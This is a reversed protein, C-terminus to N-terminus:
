DYTLTYDKTARICSSSIFKAHHKLSSQTISKLLQVLVYLFTKAPIHGLSAGTRYSCRQLGCLSFHYTLIERRRHTKMCSLLLLLNFLCKQNKWITQLGQQGDPNSLLHILHHGSLAKSEAVVEVTVFEATVELFVDAEM